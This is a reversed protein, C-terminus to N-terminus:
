SVFITNYCFVKRTVISIYLSNRSLNYFSLKVNENKKKKFKVNICTWCLFNNHAVLSLPSHLFFTVVLKYRPLYFSLLLRMLLCYSVKCSIGRTENLLHMIIIWLYSISKWCFIVTPAVFCKGSFYKMEKRRNSFSLTKISNHTSSTALKCLPYTLMLSM